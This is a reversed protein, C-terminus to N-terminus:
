GGLINASAVWDEFILLEKEEEDSSPKKKKNKKKKSASDNKRIRKGEAKDSTPLPIVAEPAPAFASLDAERAKTSGLAIPVTVEPIVERDHTANSSVRPSILSLINKTM